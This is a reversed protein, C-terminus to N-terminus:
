KRFAPISGPRASAPPGLIERLIVAAALTQKKRLLDVTSALANSVPVAVPASALPAKTVRTEIPPSPMVVVAELIEAPAPMPPPAPARRPPPPAVPPTARRREPVSQRSPPTPKVPERPPAPRGEAEARRRRVEELFRDVENASRRPRADNEDPPPLPPPQLRRPMDKNKAMNSLIWVAVAILPILLKLWDM